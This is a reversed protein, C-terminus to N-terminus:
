GVRQGRDDQRERTRSSASFASFREVVIGAVVMTAYFTVFLYISVRPGYHKRFINLIPLLILDLDVKRLVEDGSTPPDRPEHDDSASPTTAPSGHM